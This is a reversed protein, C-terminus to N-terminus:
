SKKRRRLAGMGGLGAILMWGAAPLPIDPVVTPDVSDYFTIHSLSQGGPTTWSGSDVVLAASLCAVTYLDTVDCVGGSAVASDDVEWFLTFSQNKAVWFRVGPDLLGRNYSWDGTLNTDTGSSTTNSFSFETGDISPYVTNNVESVNLSENYQAIVPSLLINQGGENAFITCSDFGNGPGVAFYGKCDNGDFEYTLVAASAGSAFGVFSAAAIALASLSKLIM